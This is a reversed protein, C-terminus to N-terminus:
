QFASHQHHHTMPDAHRCAGPEIDTQVHRFQPIAVNTSIHELWGVRKPCTRPHTALPHPPLSSRCVQQEAAPSLEHTCCPACCLYSPVWASQPRMVPVIEAGPSRTMDPSRSSAHKWALKGLYLRADFTPCLQTCGHFVCGLLPARRAHDAGDGLTSLPTRPPPFRSPFNHM